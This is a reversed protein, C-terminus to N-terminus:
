RVCRVDRIWEKGSYEIGEYFYVYWAYLSDVENSSWLDNVMSRIKAGQFLESLCNERNWCDYSTCSDSVNCKWDPDSELDTESLTKLEDITPLRWDSYGGESLKKCYSVADDWEKRWESVSSWTLGTVPDKWINCKGTSENCGREECHEIDMLIYRTKVGDYDPDGTWHMSTGNQCECGEKQCGATLFVASFVLCLLLVYKKMEKEM